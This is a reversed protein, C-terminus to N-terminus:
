GLVEGRRQRRKVSSTCRKYGGAKRSTATSTVDDMQGVATDSQRPKRWPSTGGDAPRDVGRDSAADHENGRCDARSFGHSLANIEKEKKLTVPRGCESRDLLQVSSAHCPEEQRRLSDREVRRDQAARSRTGRLVM